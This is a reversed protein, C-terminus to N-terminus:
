KYLKPPIPETGVLRFKEEKDGNKVYVWGNDIRFEITDGETLTRKKNEIEYVKTDTAVRFIPTVKRTSSGVYVDRPHAYSDMVVGREPYTKSQAKAFVGLQAGFAMFVIATGALWFRKRALMRM